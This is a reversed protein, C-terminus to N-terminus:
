MFLITTVAHAVRGMRTIAERVAYPNDLYLNLNLLFTFEKKQQSHHKWGGNHNDRQEEYRTIQAQHIVEPAQHHDERRRSKDKLANM